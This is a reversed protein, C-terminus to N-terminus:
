ASQYHVAIQRQNMQYGIGTFIPQNNNGMGFWTFAFTRGENTIILRANTRSNNEEFYFCDYSGTIQNPNGDNKRAIENFIEDTHENTYVGNLSGDLEISYLVIGEEVEDM